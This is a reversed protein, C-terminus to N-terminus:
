KKLIPCSSVPTITGSSTFTGSNIDRYNVPSVSFTGGNGNDLNYYTSQNGSLTICINETTSPEGIYVATDPNNTLSNNAIVGHITTYYGISIGSGYNGSNNLCNNITNNAINLGITDSISNPYILIGSGDCNSIYNNLVTFDLTNFSSAIHIGSSSNSLNTVTNNNIAITGNTATAAFAIGNDNANTILNHTAVFNLNNVPAGLFFGSGGNNSMTNDSLTFDCNEFSGTGNVYFYIANSSNNNFTNDAVEVACNHVTGSALLVFSSALSGQTGTRNNSIINDSLNVTQNLTNNLLFRVSSNENNNFINDNIQFQYTNEHTVIELSASSPSTQGQFLNNKCIVSSTGSLDLAIGNINNLFQNNQILITSNQTATADIIFVGTDQFNCNLVELFSVASGQIADNSTSIIHLGSISNNNGLIIANGETDVDQNTIKPSSSTQAPISIAGQPTLLVQNTGSGWLKQNNKLTIGANMGTTTGDGPFIYIIDNDSSNAEVQAFNHYPSQYSGNSHGTNDMFVFYYPLGTLPDIAPTKQRAKGIVVIEERIVPQVIRSLMANALKCSNFNDTKKLSAKPGFPISFTLQGQFRNHFMRDYSNSLELQIYDKYKGLLRVKAGWINSGVEGIFYYPGISSYFDFHKSKGFHFGIDANFGKMAFQRKQSLLASHDLFHAFKVRYPSTIKRGVPLYGNLRCDWFAGLTEFGCGVQNYHLKSSNRYDYYANFGYLRNKIFGRFGMGANAALQSNNFIHGRLDVFPLVSVSKPNPAFFGEITTYGQDYGIGGQEIHRASLKYHHVHSYCNKFDMATDEHSLVHNLSLNTVCFTLFYSRPISM